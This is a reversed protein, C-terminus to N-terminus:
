RAERARARAAHGARAPKAISGVPTPDVGSRELRALRSDIETLKAALVGTTQDLAELSADRATEQARSRDTTRATEVGHRLQEIQARLGRVEDLMRAMEPTPDTQAAVEANSPQGPALMAADLRSGAELGPKVGTKGGLIVGAVSGAAISLTLAAGLQLRMGGSSFVGGRFFGAGGTGVKVSERKFGGLKPARERRFSGYLSDETGSFGPLPPDENAMLAEM